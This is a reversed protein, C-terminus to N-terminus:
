DIATSAGHGFALGAAQFRSVAYRFWDRPTALAALREEAEDDM